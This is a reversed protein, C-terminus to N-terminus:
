GYRIKSIFYFFYYYYFVKILKDVDDISGPADSLANLIAVGDAANVIKEEIIIFFNYNIKM